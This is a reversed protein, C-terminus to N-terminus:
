AMRLLVPVFTRFDCVKAALDHQESLGGYIWRNGHQPDKTFKLLVSRVALDHWVSVCAKLVRM